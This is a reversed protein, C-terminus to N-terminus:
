RTNRCHMAVVMGRKCLRGGGRNAPPPRVKGLNSLLTPSFHHLARREQLFGDQAPLTM